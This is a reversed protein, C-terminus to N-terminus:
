RYRTCLDEVLRDWSAEYIYKPLMEEAMLTGPRHNLNLICHGLEHYMLAKQLVDDGLDKVEIATAIRVGPVSMTWCVGVMDPNGAISTNYGVYRLLRLDSVDAGYAHCDDIFEDIYGVLEPHLMPPAPPACSCVALLLLVYRM